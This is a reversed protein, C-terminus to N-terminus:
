SERWSCACSQEHIRDISMCSGDEVRHNWHDEQACFPCRFEAMEAWLVGQEADLTRRAHRYWSEPTPM